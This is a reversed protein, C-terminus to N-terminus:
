VTAPIKIHLERESTADTTKMQQQGEVACYKEPGLGALNMVMNQKTWTSVGQSDKVFM